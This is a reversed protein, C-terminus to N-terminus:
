ARALIVRSSGVVSFGDDRNAFYRRNATPADLDEVQRFGLRALDDALARPEFASVWPEGAIAVMRAIRARAEREQPDLGSEAVLYDFVIRSGPACDRAVYALTHMVAERTLYMSVGLWSFFTPSAPRLGAARLEGALSQTEFDVPVFGLGSPPALGHEALQARKWAQTSPHDVELVRLGRHPNRLGFTDLGAGLIVCQRVGERWARSLADEAHRSRLVLSARLALAGPARFRELGLALRRVRQAGLIRLAFADEFVLPRELLQHAARQLATSLATRSPEGPQLARAGRPLALGAAAGALLRRRSGSAPPDARRTM